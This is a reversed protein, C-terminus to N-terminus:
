SEGELAHDNSALYTFSAKTIKLNIMTEVSTLGPINGLEKRLFASLDDPEHFMMWAIIDYRGTSIIVFHVNKYSSLKDAVADVEGPRVNIGMTAVTKYGLAPPSAVAVVKIIGEDLLRRLKRRATAKSTGIKKALDTNTQRGDTELEAILMLDMADLQLSNDKM